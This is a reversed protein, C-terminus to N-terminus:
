PLLRTKETPNPGDTITKMEFGWDVKPSRAYIYGIAIVPYSVM